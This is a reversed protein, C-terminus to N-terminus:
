TALLRGALEKLVKAGVMATMGSRDRDPNIEVIDAGVLNGEFSQIVSLADRTTMGGPEFHSVGPAFAPDLVDIDFSLYVPGEFSFRQSMDFDKMEVVEVGFREAQARQHPNMTRIGVQVLRRAHGAEMIRAFPCANAYRDGEYEDYLDPHADFHLIELDPYIKSHAAVLPATVSHDGGISILQAGRELSQSAGTEIAQQVDADADLNLDGLDTFDKRDSLDIGSETCLNASGGYLQERVADPAQAPGRMFTSGNDWPVGLVAVSGPPLAKATEPQYQPM